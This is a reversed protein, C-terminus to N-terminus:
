HVPAHEPHPGLRPHGLLQSVHHHAVVAPRLAHDRRIEEAFVRRLGDPPKGDELVLLGIAVIRAIGLLVHLVAPEALEELGVGLPVVPRDVGEPGSSARRSKFLARRTASRGREARGSAGAVLAGGIGETAYRRVRGAYRSRAKAGRGRTIPTAAVLCPMRLGLLLLDRGSQWRAL